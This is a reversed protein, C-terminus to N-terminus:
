CNELHGHNYIALAKGKLKTGIFPTNKSKSRLDNLSFEWEEDPNFLTFNAENGKEIATVPLGLIKRPEHSIARIIEGTEMNDCLAKNLLGFASELSIIGFAAHEFEVNKSEVDEPTHDSSIANITGDKLGKILAKRNSEDRFPPMVKKNQDFDTLNKDTLALNHAFVECTVEVGKKRADRILAVSKATSIGSFHIKAQNYEALYLDRAVMLEEALEPLGKLGLSTSVAGEHMQGHACLSKEHPFSIILGKFNKAYQLATSMLAASQVPRKGDTFAVAGALNMDYLEAMQEGIREASITGYPYIDIISGRARNKVYEIQAKTSLPPQTGPAVCVGTFGGKRAAQLGTCIDEKQEFGPDCFNARLDLWGLSLHLNKAEFVEGSWKINKAIKDIKGNVVLVDQITNHHPGVPDIIKASKILVDMM